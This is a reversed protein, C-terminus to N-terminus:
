ADFDPHSKEGCGSCCISGCVLSLCASDVNVSRFQRGAESFDAEPVGKRMDIKDKAISGELGHPM